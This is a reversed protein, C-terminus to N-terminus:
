LSGRRGAIEIEVLDSIAQARNAFGKHERWLDILTERAITASFDGSVSQRGLTAVLRAVQVPPLLAIQDASLRTTDHQQM